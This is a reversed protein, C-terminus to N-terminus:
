TPPRDLGERAEIRIKELIDRVHSRIVHDSVRLRGAIEHVDTGTVVLRLIAQERPTLQSSREAKVATSWTAHALLSVIQERQVLLANRSVAEIARQLAEPPFDKQLLGSVGATFWKEVSERPDDSQVLVKVHPLSERMAQVFGVGPGEPMEVNLLVVDPMWEQAVAIANSTAVSETTFSAVLALQDELRGRDPRDTVIMVRPKSSASEGGFVMFDRILVESPEEDSAVV